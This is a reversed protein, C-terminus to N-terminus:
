PCYQKQCSGRERFYLIWSIILHIIMGVGFLIEIFTMNLYFVGRQFLLYMIGYYGINVVVSNLFTYITKGYSIFWGDICAAIAYCIYFPLMAKLIPVIDAANPIGMVNTLFFDWCPMTAFWVAYFLMTYKMSNKWTIKELKNKQILQVLCLVPILMWGWIFNNAVWYNGSESVANVMRCIMVAYIFNDLFIQIGSFLGIKLWSICFEKEPRGIRILGSAVSCILAFMSIMSNTILDSYVAGMDSYKSILIFDFIGALIFKSVTLIVVIRYANNMTFLMACFTGAFGILMSVLQMMLFNEAYEAHMFEAINGVYISIVISFVAYLGCSLCFTFGNLSAKRQKLLLYLPTILTTVFVEDILDFWEMQGLIDINVDHIVVIHMRVALYISPILMWAMLAFFLKLDDKNQM